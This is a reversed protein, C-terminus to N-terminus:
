GVMRFHANCGLCHYTQIDIDLTPYSLNHCLPCFHQVDEELSLMLLDTSINNFDTKTFSVLCIHHTESDDYYALAHRLEKFIKVLGHNESVFVFKSESALLYIRKDTGTDKILNYTIAM